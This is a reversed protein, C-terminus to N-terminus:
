FLAGRNEQTHGSERRHAFRDQEQENAQSGDLRSIRRYKSEGGCRAPCAALSSGGTKRRFFEPREASYGLHFYFALFFLLFPRFFSAKKLSAQSYGLLFAPELSKGRLFNESSSLPSAPISIPSLKSGASIIKSRLINTPLMRTKTPSASASSCALFRSPTMCKRSSPFPAAKAFSFPKKGTAKKLRLKRSKSFRRKFRLSGRSAPASCTSNACSPRRCFNASRNRSLRRLKTHIKIPFSARPFNRTLERPSSPRRAKAKIAVGFAM